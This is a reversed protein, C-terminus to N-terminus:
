SQRLNQPMKSFTTRWTKVDFHLSTGARATQLIPKGCGRAYGAEFYVNQPSRTFDALVLDSNAIENMVSQSIEYDGPVLDIRVVDIKQSVRNCARKIAEFYDVLAPEEDFAFSMAVFLKTSNNKPKSDKKKQRQNRSATKGFSASKRAARVLDEGRAKENIQGKRVYFEGESTAVPALNPPAKPVNLCVVPSGGIDVIEATTKWPLLYSATELLSRRTNIVEENTLGIPKGEDNVGIILNGGDTNAFAVLIRTLIRIDPLRTKFEVTQSEGGTLLEQIRPSVVVAQTNNSSM